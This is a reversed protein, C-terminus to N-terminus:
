FVGSQASAIRAQPTTPLSPQHAAAPASPWLSRALEAPGCPCGAVLWRALVEHVKCFHVEPAGPTNALWQALTDSCLGEIVRAYGLQSLALANSLQEMQGALPKTLVPKRWQLCESILEFGSNCIVGRSAALNAKFASISTPHREVNGQQGRELASAYQVFRQRPFQQLWATVQAQDEFPLYVLIHEGQERPLEPLDLIPPLVNSAYPHWHLGLPIDVPAFHRMIFRSLVN